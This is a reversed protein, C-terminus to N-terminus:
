KKPKAKLPIEERVELLNGAEDLVRWIALRWGEDRRVQCIVFKGDPSWSPYMIDTPKTTTLRVREKTDLNYIVVQWPEKESKRQMFAIWQGFHPNWRPYTEQWPTMELPALDRNLGRFSAIYIDGNREFAIRSSDPAATPWRLSYAESNVVPTFTGTDPNLRYIDFYDYIRVGEVIGYETGPILYLEEPNVERNENTCFLIEGNDAWFPFAVTIYRGTLALATLRTSVDKQTIKYLDLTYKPQGDFDSAIVLAKGDPAWSPCINTGRGQSCERFYPEHEFERSITGGEISLTGLHIEYLSPNRDDRYVFAIRRSLEEGEKAPAWVPMLYHKSYEVTYTETYEAITEDIGLEDSWVRIIIKYDGPKTYTHTRQVRGDAPVDGYVPESGGEGDWDISYRLPVGKPHLAKFSLTVNVPYYESTKPDVNVSEIQARQPPTVIIEKEWVDARCGNNKVRLELSYKGPKTLHFEARKSVVEDVTKGNGVNMLRWRYETIRVTPSGEQEVEPVVTFTVPPEVPSQGVEPPDFTVDKITPKPAPRVMITQAYTDERNYKDWVTLTVKFQQPTEKDFCFTHSVTTKDNEVAGDGFDWRRHVIDGSSTDQFSIVAPAVYEDAPNLIRFSAKPPPALPHSVFYFGLGVVALLILIIVGDNM